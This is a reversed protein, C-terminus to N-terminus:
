LIGQRIRKRRQRQSMGRRGGPLHTRGGGRTAAHRSQSPTPMHASIQGMALISAMMAFAHYRSVIKDSSM